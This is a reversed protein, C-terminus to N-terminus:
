RDAVADAVVTLCSRQAGVTELFRAQDATCVIRTRARRRTARALCALGAVDVFRMGTIDITGGDLVDVLVTFAIGNTLDTEGRLRLLRGNEAFEHRVRVGNRQAPHARCAASIDAPSFAIAPYQCLATLHGDGFLPYARAEFAILEDTAVVPPLAWSMDVSVWLGSYGSAVAAETAAAYGQSLRAPDFGGHSLQVAHPDAFQVQADSVARWIATASDAVIRQTPHLQRPAPFIMVQADHDLARHTFAVTNDIFERMTDFPTAAHDGAALALMAIL